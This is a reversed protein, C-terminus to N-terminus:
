PAAASGRADAANRFRLAGLEDPEALVLAVPEFVEGFGDQSVLAGHRAFRALARLGDVGRAEDGVQERM